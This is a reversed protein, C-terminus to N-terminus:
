KPAELLFALRLAFEILEGQTEKRKRMWDIIWRPIRADVRERRLYNKVRPRGRKPKTKM